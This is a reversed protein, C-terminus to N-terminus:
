SRKKKAQQQLEYEVGLRAAEEIDTKIGAKRLMEMTYAVMELYKKNDGGGCNNKDDKDPQQQKNPPPIVASKIKIKQETSVLKEKKEEKLIITNESFQGNFSNYEYIVIRFVSDNLNMTSFDCGYFCKNSLLFSESKDKGCIVCCESFTKPNIITIYRTTISDEIKTIGNHSIVKLNKETQKELFKNPLPGLYM